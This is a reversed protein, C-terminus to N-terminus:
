HTGLVIRVVLYIVGYWVATMLIGVAIFPLAKGYAFDRERNKASQVGFFSALISAVIQFFTLSNETTQPLKTDNSSSM